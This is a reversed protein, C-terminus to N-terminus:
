PLTEGARKDIAMRTRPLSDPYNKQLFDILKERVNVRLNWATPSDVASMLARIEVTKETADTVQLVNVNGDWNEDSELIRTLEERLANFPITYDTYIFVTGLTILRIIISSVFLIILLQIVHKINLTLTNDPAFSIVIINFALTILLAFGPAKFKKGILKILLKDNKGASKIIKFIVFHVIVSALLIIVSILLAGKWDGNEYQTLFETGFEEFM